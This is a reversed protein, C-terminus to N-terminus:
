GHTKSDLVRVNDDVEVIHYTEVSTNFHEAIKEYALIDVCVSSCPGDLDLEHLNYNSEGHLIYCCAM